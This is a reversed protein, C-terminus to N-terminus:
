DETKLVSFKVFTGEAKAPLLKISIRNKGKKLLHMDEPFFEYFSYSPGNGGAGIKTKRFLEGNIYIECDRTGFIGICFTGGTGSIRFSSGTDETCRGSGYLTLEM